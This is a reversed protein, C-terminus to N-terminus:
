TTPWRLSGSAHTRRARSITTAALHLGARALVQAIRVKGMTPLLVKLPKVLYRVFEPFKNVPNSIQILAREGREDVRRLWSRLTQEDILFTQSAQECSWNRAAKLQLIRMRQVPTYFPRRRSSLRSWRANKIALEERLLVIETTARDLEARLRRREIHSVATRSRALMLAMSALSVAHLLASKVHQTWGRPLPIGHGLQRSSM